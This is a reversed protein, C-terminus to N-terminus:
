LVADVCGTMTLMTAQLSVGSANGPSLSSVKLVVFLCGGVISRGWKEQLLGRKGGYSRVTYKKPLSIRILAGMAASISPFLLAGAVTEALNSAKIVINNERLQPQQPQQQAAAGAAQAPQADALPPPENDDPIDANRIQQANLPEGDENGGFIDLEMNMEFVVAEEEDGVAERIDREELTEEEGRKPEIAKMWREEMKGFISKYLENYLSRAYPLVAIAMAPSPPWSTFDLMEREKESTFFIIPLTPLLKDAFSTRSLTLVLPLLPLGILSRWGVSGVGEARIKLMSRLGATLALWAQQAEDLLVIGVGREVATDRAPITRLAAAVGPGYYLMSEAEEAGFIIYVTHVGYVWAGAVFCGVTTAVLGPLIAQSALAEFRDVLGVFQSMDRVVRIESKCQPCLIKASRHRGSSSPAQLDAIWDLLCSEHATLACPCPTRWVPHSPPDETEDTLCIWCKRPEFDESQTQRQTSITRTITPSTSSTARQSSIPESHAATSPKPDNLYFTSDSSIETNSSAQHAPSSQSATSSSTADAAQSRRRQQSSSSQQFSAM